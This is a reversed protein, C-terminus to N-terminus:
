RYHQLSAEQGCNKIERFNNRHRLISTAVNARVKANLIRLTTRGNMVAAIYHKQGKKVLVPGGSQGAMSDCNNFLVRDKRYYASCGSHVSLLYRRDRGYGAHVLRDQDGIRDQEYISVVPTEIPTKLVIFAYNHLANGGGSGDRYRYGPNFRVCKGVSHSIYKERRYGALFHIRSAKIPKASNRNYLCHAATVVIEPDILTGTCEGVRSSGSTYIKGVANWPEQWSDMPKRDDRGIVGRKLQEAFAANACVGACALAILGNRAWLSFGRM